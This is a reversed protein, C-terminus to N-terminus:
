RARATCRARSVWGCALGIGVGLIWSGANAVAILAWLPATTPGSEGPYPDPVTSQHVTLAAFTLAGLILVGGVPWERRAVAYGAVVGALLAPYGFLLEM